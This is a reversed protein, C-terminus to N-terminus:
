GGKLLELIEAPSMEKLLKKLEEKQANDTNNSDYVALIKDDLDQKRVKKVYKETVDVKGHRLLTQLERINMGSDIAHNSFSHRAWHSSFKIGGLHERGVANLNARITANIRDIEKSLAVKKDKPKSIQPYINAM